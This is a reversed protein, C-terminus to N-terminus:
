AAIRRVSVTKGDRGVAFVAGNIRCDGEAVKFRIRTGKIFREISISKEMGIVSDFSGTMGVDTIYGTGRPLITEDATQVHTHTGFVVSARGDVYWGFAKKESTSEAHFDVVIIDADKHVAEYIEDFKRFPCDLPMMFTRGILSITCIAVGKTEKIYYGFGPTVPPYNAPRLLTRETDIVSLIEKDNWIHNGTTIVDVGAELLEKVTSPTVAMGAASNEGNVIIFDIHNQDVIGQLRSKLISRGPKGVVDGIVLINLAAKM